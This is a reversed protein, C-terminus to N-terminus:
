LLDEQTEDFQREADRCTLEIMQWSFDPLTDYLWNELAEAIMDSLKKCESSRVKKKSLHVYEFPSTDHKFCAIAYSVLELIRKDKM